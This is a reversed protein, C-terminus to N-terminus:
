TGATVQFLPSIARIFLQFAADLKGKCDIAHRALPNTM